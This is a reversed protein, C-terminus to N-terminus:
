PQRIKVTQTQKLQVKTEMTQTLQHGHYKISQNLQIVQTENRQNLKSTYKFGTNTRNMTQDQGHTGTTRTMNKLRLIDNRQVYLLTVAANLDKEDKSCVNTNLACITKMDTVRRRAILHM